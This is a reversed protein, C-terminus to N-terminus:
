MKLGDTDSRFYLKWIGRAPSFCVNKYEVIHWQGM